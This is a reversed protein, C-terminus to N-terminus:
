ECKISMTVPPNEWSCTDGNFKAKTINDIRCPRLFTHANGNCNWYDGQDNISLASCIWGTDTEWTQTIGTNPDDCDLKVGGCNDLGDCGSLYEVGEMSLGSGNVDLNKGFTQCLINAKHGECVYTDTSSWGSVTVRSYVAKPDIANSFQGYNECYSPDTKDGDSGASCSFTDSYL